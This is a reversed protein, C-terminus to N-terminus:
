LGKRDAHLLSVLVPETQLAGSLTIIVDQAQPVPIVSRPDLSHIQFDSRQLRHGFHILVEGSRQFANLYIRRRAHFATLLSNLLLVTTRDDIAFGPRTIEDAIRRAVRKTEQGLASPESM